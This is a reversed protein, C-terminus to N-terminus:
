KDAKRHHGPSSVAAQSENALLRRKREVGWRYGGLSGDSRVVRHCPIALAIKNNACARAVARVAKPKGIAHAIDQYSATTGIPIDQLAEWVRRQFATGQIDLPLAVGAQPSRIFRVVQQVWAGLEHSDEVLTAGSFRERLRQRSADPDDDLEIACIGKDTVAVMLWGLPSETVSYRVLAGAAGGRFRSPTMGLTKDSHEYVRSSSGYGAGYIADMVPTGAQLDQQLRKMRQMAAYQKPTVGVIQKFLRHFHFRSLGTAKALEALRLPADTAKILECAKRIATVQRDQVSAAMPQCRRCARYGAQEADRATEFFEVNQPKPRRAPCTPRCYIGTSRVAYVFRNDAEPNRTTVAEWRSAHSEFTPDSM